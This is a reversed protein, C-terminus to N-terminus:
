IFMERWIRFWLHPMGRSTSKSPIQSGLFVCTHLLEVKLHPYILLLKQVKGSWVQDQKDLSTDREWLRRLGPDWRHLTWPHELWRRPRPESCSCRCLCSLGLDALQLPSMSNCFSSLVWKRCFLSYPWFWSKRWLREQQIASPGGPKSSCIM